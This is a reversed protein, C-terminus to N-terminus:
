GQLLVLNNALRGQSRPRGTRPLSCEAWQNSSTGPAGVKACRGTRASDGWTVESMSRANLAGRRGPHLGGAVGCRATCRRGDGRDSLSPRLRFEPSVMRDPRKTLVQLQDSLSPRLRFEPSVMRDSAQDAGSAPRGVFAPTQVGAVGDPRSAQDAGSAPRGVFAPTQVGAVRSVRLRRGAVAIGASLSPRLGIEPSVQWSPCATTYSNASTACRGDSVATPLEGTPLRGSDVRRHARTGRVTPANDFRIGDCHILAYRRTCCDFHETASVPIVPVPTM